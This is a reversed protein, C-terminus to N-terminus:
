LCIGRCDSGGNQLDCDDWPQDFCTTGKECPRDAIGGCQQLGKLNKPLCIGPLDTILRSDRPDAKCEYGNPCKKPNIAFGGCSKFEKNWVCHGACERLNTCNPKDPVCHSSPKCSDKGRGCVQGTNKATSFGAALLVAILSSVKM